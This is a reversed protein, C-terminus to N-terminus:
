SSTNNVRYLWSILWQFAQEIYVPCRNQSKNMWCVLSTCIFPTYSLLRVLTLRFWRLSSCHPPRVSSHVYLNFSTGVLSTYLYFATCGSIRVFSHVYLYRCSFNLIVFHVMFRSFSPFFILAAAYFVDNAAVTCSVALLQM